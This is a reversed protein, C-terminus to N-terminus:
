MFKGAMSLLGGMGGGGQSAGGGGAGAQSKLYMKLAMEGAKMVASQKDAGSSVNGASAQQDFLKSAQSMALGIFASQSQNQTSGGSGSTFMKLAQMAAASGMGSSTAASTSNSNASSGFYDQHHRVAAEEDLDEDAINGKRAGLQSVIDSFFSSDETSGSAAHHAAGRLDQDEDYPIGGGAPYGGGHTMNGGGRYLGGQPREDDDSGLVKGLFKDM